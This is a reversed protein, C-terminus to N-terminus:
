FFEMEFWFLDLQAGNKILSLWGHEQATITALCRVATAALRHWSLMYDEGQGTELYHLNLSHQMYQVM